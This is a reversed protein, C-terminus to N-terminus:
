RELTAGFSFSIPEPNDAYLEFAIKLHRGLFSALKLPIQETKEVSENPIRTEYFIKKGIRVRLKLYVLQVGEKRAPAKVTYNLILNRAPPVHEFRLVRLKGRVPNFRIELDQAEDNKKILSINTEEGEKTFVFHDKEWDGDLIRGGKAVFWAQAEALHDQFYYVSPTPMVDWEEASVRPTLGFCLLAALM